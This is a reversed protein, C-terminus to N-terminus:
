TSRGESAWSQAAVCMSLSGRSERELNEELNMVNKLSGELEQMATLTQQLVQAWTSQILLIFLHLNYGFWM